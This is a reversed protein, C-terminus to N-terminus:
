FHRCFGITADWTSHKNQMPLYIYGGGITLSNEYFGDLPIFIKGGLRLALTWQPSGKYWKSIGPLSEYNYVPDVVPEGTLDNTITTKTIYYVNPMYYRSNIRAAGIGAEIMIGNCPNFGINGIALFNARYEQAENNPDIFSSYKDSSWDNVSTVHITADIKEGSEDEITADAIIDIEDSTILNVVLGKFFKPSAAIYAGFSVPYDFLSYYYSLGLQYEPSFHYNIHHANGSENFEFYDPVSRNLSVNMAKNAGPSLKIPQTKSYFNNAKFTISHNGSTTKVTCPTRGIYSDDLYVSIEKPKNAYVKFYAETSPSLKIDISKPASDDVAITGYYPEYGDLNVSYAYSKGYEFLLTKGSDFLEDGFKIKAHSPTINFKIDVKEKVVKVVYPSEIGKTNFYFSDYFTDEKVPNQNAILPVEIMIKQSWVYLFNEKDFLHSTLVKTFPSLNDTGTRAVNGYETAYCIMQQNGMKVDTPAQWTGKTSGDINKVDRCADLFLFSYKCHRKLSWRIESTGICDNKISYEGIDTKAPVLMHEGEITVAHGSYYFVGVTSKDHSVIHNFKKFADSMEQRTANKLVTTNYGLLKLCRDMENADNVCTTLKEFSGSYDDNGIILAVKEQAASVVPSFIIATLMLILILYRNSSM